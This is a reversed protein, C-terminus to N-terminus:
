LMIKKGKYEFKMTLKEWDTGMRGLTRLWGVGLVLDFSGLRLPFYKETVELEQLRLIMDKCVGQGKVRRGDGVM